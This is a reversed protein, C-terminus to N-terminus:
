GALNEVSVGCCVCVCAHADRVCAIIMQIHDELKRPSVTVYIGRYGGGAGGAAAAASAPAAATKEM